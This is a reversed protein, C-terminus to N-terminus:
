KIEIKRREEVKKESAPIVISLVGNEFKAEAKNFDFKNEPIFYKYSFVPIKFNDVLVKEDEKNEKENFTETTSLILYDKKFSIEIDEKQYGALAFKLSIGEDKQVIKVPPFSPVSYKATSVSNSFFPEDFIKSM